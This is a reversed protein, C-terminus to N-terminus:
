DHRERGIEVLNTGASESTKERHHMVGLTVPNKSKTWRESNLISSFVVNRFSYRNGDDPSPSPSV